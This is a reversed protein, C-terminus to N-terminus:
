FYVTKDSTKLAQIRYLTTNYIVVLVAFAGTPNALQLATQIGSCGNKLLYKEIFVILTKDSITLLLFRLKPNKTRTMALNM